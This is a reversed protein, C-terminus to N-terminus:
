KKTYKDLFPKPQYQRDFIVPYDTRGRVPWNNKWCTRDTTGWLTVRTIKDSHKLFLDFLEGMRNNWAVSVSDPLGNVYPNLSERYEFSASVEAGVKPDPFPLATMDLETIMVKVGANAYAVIAKEYEEITPGDMALHGQMGVGDIRLGRERLQGILKVVTEVKGPYWENYDNYWLEAEPDAEHAFQFALPVFEEGLIEYFKSKRWSGDELIAENVVDWGKVRGKYRGVVTYIHDKMRQTLVEPTVTNGLSDTFFWRPAQSHWILVHGSLYMGHAEAFDALQDPLDFRFEGERPQIPGAKMCNEAVVANFHKKIVEVSASDKGTIEQTNMATGIYFHDAFAEKLAMGSQVKAPANCAVLAMGAVGAMLFNRLKSM